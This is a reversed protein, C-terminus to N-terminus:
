QETNILIKELEPLKFGRSDLTGLQPISRQRLRDRVVVANAPLYYHAPIDTGAINLDKGKDDVLKVMPRIDKGAPPRQKPDIVELSSLGTVEDTKKQVTVGDVFDEFRLVGAVETIVPHTHPDWNAVIQGGDVASGDDVQLTAGYPVKYREKERGVLDQAAQNYQDSLRRRYLESRQLATMDVTGRQPARKELEEAALSTSSKMRNQLEVCRATAEALELERERERYRRLGLIRKLRFDFRRM